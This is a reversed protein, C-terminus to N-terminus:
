IQAMEAYEAPEPSVALEVDKKKSQPFINLHLSLDWDLTYQLVSTASSLLLM